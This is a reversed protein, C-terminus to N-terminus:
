RITVVKLLNTQGPQAAVGAVIVVRDGRSVLGSRVAAESAKAILDDTDAGHGVLLPVVGSYLTTRRLTEAHPSAAIIPVTPHKKSVRLATGGTETFAVIAAAGVEDAVIAASHAIASGVSGRVSSSLRPRLYSPHEEAARCIAAMARVSEVPHAGISTEQSLMVADTGDWIANAVDSAEARTPRNSTVMSELMETATIVPVGRLNAREIIDKQAAPVDALSLEVGLDGRAVMVGQAASLIGYLELLAQPRELKAILPADYGLAKMARRCTLLDEPTRVFSLAVMDFGLEAGLKLDARDKSTLAPLRIPCNPATIGKGEGLLGGRTVVCEAEGARVSRVRLEIEGDDLLVREEPKLSAVLARQTVPLRGADGVLRRSTLTVPEGRRLRVPPSHLRGIRIKPGQLDQLLGVHRGMAAAVARVAAVTARHQEETGHSFNVRAVDMGAAILARLAAKSSSAPGLTCIIRTRRLPV